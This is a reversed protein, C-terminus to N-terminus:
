NANRPKSLLLWAALLTLPVVISWYPVAWMTLNGPFFKTVIQRDSFKNNYAWPEESFDDSEWKLFPRRSQSGVGRVRLWTLHHKASMLAYGSRSYFVDAWNGSRVWGGMFVLAMLLSVIGVKRRWPKFFEGM